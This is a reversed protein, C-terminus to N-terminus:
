STKCELDNRSTIGGKISSAVVRTLDCGYGHDNLRYKEAFRLWGLAEAEEWVVEILDILESVELERLRLESRGPWNAFREPLSRPEM